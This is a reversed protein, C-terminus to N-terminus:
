DLDFAADVRIFKGCTGAHNDGPIPVVLQNVRLPVTEGDDLVVAFPDEAYAIQVDVVGAVEGALGGVAEAAGLVSQIQKDGTLRSGRRRSSSSLKNSQKENQSNPRRM